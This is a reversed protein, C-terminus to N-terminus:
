AVRASEGTTGIGIGRQHHEAVGVDDGLDPMMRGPEVAGHEQVTRELVGVLVVLGLRDAEPMIVSLLELKKQAPLDWGDGTSGPVLIGGIHPALAELHRVARQADISGDPQYHTVTPCWLSPIGSPFLQRLTDQRGAETTM